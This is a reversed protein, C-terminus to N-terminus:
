QTQEKLMEKVKDRIWQVEGKLQALADSCNHFKFLRLEAHAHEIV